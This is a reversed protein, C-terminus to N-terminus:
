ACACVYVVVYVYVSLVWVCVRPNVGACGHVYGCWCVSVCGLRLVRLYVCVLKWM